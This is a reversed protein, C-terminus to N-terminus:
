AARAATHKKQPVVCGNGVALVFVGSVCAKRLEQGRPLYGGRLWAVALLIGGSLLYRICVLLLPPFMELPSAPRIMVIEGNQSTLTSASMGPPARSCMGVM